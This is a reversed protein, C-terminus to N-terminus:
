AEDPTPTPTRRFPSLSISTATPKPGGSEATPTRSAPPKTATPKADEDAVPTGAAAPTGGAPATVVTLVGDGLEVSEVTLGEREFYGNLEDEVIEKVDGASLVQSAAGDAQVDTLVIRGREADVMGRYSSELGYVKFRIELGDHDITVTPNELPEYDKAHAALEDNIEEASIVYTGPARGATTVSADLERVVQTAIVEELEDGVANELLPRGVVLGGFVASLICIVTFAVFGMLCGGASRGRRRPPPAGGDDAAPYGPDYGAYAPQDFAQQRIVYPPPEFRGGAPTTGPSGPDGNSRARTRDGTGSEPPTGLPGTGTPAGGRAEESAGAGGHWLSSLESRSPLPQQCALCTRSTVPNAAGCTPCFRTTGGSM